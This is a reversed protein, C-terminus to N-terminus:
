GPEPEQPGWFRFRWSFSSGRCVRPGGPPFCFEGQPGPNFIWGKMYFFLPDPPHPTGGLLDYPLGMMPHLVNKINSRVNEDFFDFNWWFGIKVGHGPGIKRSSDIPVVGPGEFYTLIISYISKEFKWFNEFIMFMEFFMNKNKSKLDIGPTGPGM